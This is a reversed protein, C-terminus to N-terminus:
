KRRIVGGDRETIAAADRKNEERLDEGVANQAEAEDEEDRAQHAPHGAGRLRETAEPQYTSHAKTIKKCTM